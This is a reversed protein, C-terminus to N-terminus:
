TSLAKRQSPQALAKPSKSTMRYGTDDDDDIVWNRTALDHLAQQLPSRGVSSISVYAYDYDLLRPVTALEDQALAVGVSVNARRLARVAEVDPCGVFVVMLQPGRRVVVSSLPMQTATKRTDQMSLGNHPAILQDQQQNRAILSQKTMSM